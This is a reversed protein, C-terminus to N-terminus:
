TTSNRNGRRRGCRREQEGGTTPRRGGDVLPRRANELVSREAGANGRHRVIAEVRRQGAGLPTDVAQDGILHPPGGSRLAAKARDCVGQEAPLPGIDRRLVDEGDDGAVETEGLLHALQDQGGDVRGLARGTPIHRAFRLLVHRGHDGLRDLIESGARLDQLWATLLQGLKQQTLVEKIKPSVEALSVEKGGSQHIQPLLSQQYYSEISRSDIQINPRLRDDVLVMLDLHLAIRRRLEPEEVKYRALTAHWVSGDDAGPYQKRIEQIRQDVQEDSPAHPSDASRMQEHLLEQDILRDLVARRDEESFDSTRRGSLLAEYCLADDWDTQLLIRGNVTAVIRDIVEGGRAQAAGGLGFLFVAALVVIAPQYIKKM